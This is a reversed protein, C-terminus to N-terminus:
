KLDIMNFPADSVMTMQYGRVNKVAKVEPFSLDKIIVKDSGVTDPGLLFIDTMANQISIPTNLEYLMRLQRVEDEPYNNDKGIILGKIIIEYDMLNIIEKVTGRRETLPTEIITKKGTISITPHQLYILVSAPSVTVVRANEFPIEIDATLSVPLFYERGDADTKYYPAGHRGMELRKEDKEKYGIADSFRPEFASSKYGFVQEFLHGLTLDISM